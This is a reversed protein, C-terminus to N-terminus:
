GQRVLHEHYWDSGDFSIVEGTHFKFAVHDADGREEIQSFGNDHGLDVIRKRIEYLPVGQRKMALVDVYIDRVTKM